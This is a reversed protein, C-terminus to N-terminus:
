RWTRRIEAIAARAEAIRRPITLGQPTAAYTDVSYQGRKLISGPSSPDIRGALHARHRVAIFEPEESLVARAFDRGKSTLYYIHASVGAVAARPRYNVFAHSTLIAIADNMWWYAGNRWRVMPLWDVDVMEGVLLREASALLNEDGLSLATNALEEALYEPYRVWFDRALFAIQSPMVAVSDSPANDGPEEGAEDLILLLRLADSDSRTSRYEATLVGVDYATCSSRVKM